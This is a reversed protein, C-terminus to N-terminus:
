LCEIPFFDFSPNMLYLFKYMYPQYVQEISEKNDQVQPAIVYIACISFDHKQVSRFNALVDTYKKKSMLCMSTTVDDADECSLM